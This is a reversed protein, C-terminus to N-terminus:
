DDERVNLSFGINSANATSTTYAFTITEGPYINIDDLTQSFSDADVLIFSTILQQNPPPSTRFSTSTSDVNAVSYSSNYQAFNSGVITSNKYIYIIVTNAQVAGSQTPPRSSMRLNICNISKKNMKKNFLLANQITYFPVPNTVISAPSTFTRNHTFRNGYYKKVGELFIGFSGSSVRRVTSNGSSDVYCLFNFSPVSLTPRTLSNPNTVTHCNIMISNNNSNTVEIKFNFTGFGLYQVDIQYINGLRPNLNFGSKGTGNCKDGNWSSQPIFQRSPQTGAVESVVTGFTINTGTATLTTTTIPQFYQFYITSGIVYTTWGNFTQRSITYAADSTTTSTLSINVAIGNLTITATAPNTVTSVPLAWVPLM